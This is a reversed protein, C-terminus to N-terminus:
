AREQAPRETRLSTTPADRDQRRTTSNPERERAQHAVLEDGRLIATLEDDVDLQRGAGREVLRARRASAASRSSECSGRNTVTRDVVDARVALDFWIVHRTTATGFFSRVALARVLQPSARTCDESVHESPALTMTVSGAKTSPAVVSAGIM